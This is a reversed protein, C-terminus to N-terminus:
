EEMGACGAQFIVVQGSIHLCDYQDIVVAYTLFIYGSLLVCFKLCPCARNQM